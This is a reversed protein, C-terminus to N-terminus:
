LPRLLLKDPDVREIVYEKSTGGQQELILKKGDVKWSGAPLASARDDPGPISKVLSGDPELRLADRGRAPPLPYDAPRFVQLGEKDEEHSHVWTKALAAHKSPTMPDGAQFRIVFAGV